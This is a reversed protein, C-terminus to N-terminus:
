DAPGGVGRQQSVAQAPGRAVSHNPVDHSAVSLSGDAHGGITVTKHNKIADTLTTRESAPVHDLLAEKPYMTVSLHGDIESTQSVFKGLDHLKGTQSFGPGVAHTKGDHFAELRSQPEHGAQSVVTVEPLSQKIDNVITKAANTAFQELGSVAKGIEAITQKVKEDGTLHSSAANGQHETSPLGHAVEHSKDLASRTESGIIGDAVLGHSAQFERVAHETKKGFNGDATVGLERQASAVDAGRSGFELLRSATSPERAQIPALSIDPAPSPIGAAASYENTWGIVATQYPVGTHGEFDGPTSRVHLSGSNYLHAAEDLTHGSNISEQLMGAAVDAAKAVDHQVLPLLPVHAPTNKDLQFMGYGNGSDGLGTKPDYGWGRGFDTERKAIALLFTPPLDHAVAVNSITRVVGPDIKELSAIAGVQQDTLPEQSM